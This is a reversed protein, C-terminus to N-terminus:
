NLLYEVGAFIGIDGSKTEMSSDDIPNSLGQYYRAQLTLFTAKGAQVSVGLGALIGMTTSKYGESIDQTESEGGASVKMNAGTKFGIVPGFM